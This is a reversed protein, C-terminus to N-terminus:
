YIRRWEPFPCPLDPDYVINHTEIPFMRNLEFSLYNLFEEDPVSPKDM